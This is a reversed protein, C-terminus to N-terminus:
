PVIRSEDTMMELEMSHRNLLVEWAHYCDGRSTALNGFKVGTFGM